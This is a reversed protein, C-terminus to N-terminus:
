IISDVTKKFIREIEKLKKMSTKVDLQIRWNKVIDEENEEILTINLENEIKEFLEPKFLIDVESYSNGLKEFFYEGSENPEIITGVSMIVIDEFGNNLVLDKILRFKM